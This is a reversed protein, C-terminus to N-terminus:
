RTWAGGCTMVTANDDARLGKLNNFVVNHKEQECHGSSGPDSPAVPRSRNVVSIDRWGQTRTHPPPPVLRRPLRLTWPSGHSYIFKVGAVTLCKMNVFDPQSATFSNVIIHFHLKAHGGTNPWILIRINYRHKFAPNLVLGMKYIGYASYETTPLCKIKNSICLLKLIFSKM